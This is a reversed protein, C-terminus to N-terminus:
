PRPLDAETLVVHNVVSRSDSTYILHIKGDSTQIAYPYAYSNKGEAIPRKAPWTNGGDRSVAVTLPTRSSKSDNYFLLLTGSRLGLLEVAANPNPFETDVGPSWTRGGDKSESRVIFGDEMPGYGGGRRCLAIVRKEDLQAPSPQLNGYRSTIRTSESWKKTKPNYRLFLSVTDPGVFETDNGTERYIPLLYDGDRLLIPKGRVMTGEEWTIVGADSWSRAADRSIKAAIRSTSWTEGPRVVYWLWVVGDPAQWVVPNGASHFPDQAVMMPATWKGTAKEKRAGYVATNPAYEGDGGYYALYLDGDALETIAAPHKYRGTPTEPGFVKEREMGAAAAGALALCILARFM